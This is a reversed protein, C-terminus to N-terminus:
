LSLSLCFEFFVSLCVNGKTQSTSIYPGNPELVRRFAYAIQFTFRFRGLQSFPPIIYYLEWAQAQCILAVIDAGKFVPPLERRSHTEIFKDNLPRSAFVHYDYSILLLIFHTLWINYWRIVIRNNLIINCLRYSDRDIYIHIM